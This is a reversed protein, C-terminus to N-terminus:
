QDDNEGTRRPAPIIMDTRVEIRTLRNDIAHLAERMNDLKSGIATAAKEARDVADRMSGGTNPQIEHEVKTATVRTKRLEVIAGILAVLILGCSSLIAVGGPTIWPRAEEAALMIM